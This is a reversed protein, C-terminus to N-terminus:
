PMASKVEDILRQLRAETEATVGKPYFHSQQHQRPLLPDDYDRMNFRQDFLRARALDFEEKAKKDAFAAVRSDLISDPTYAADSFSHTPTHLQDSGRTTLPRSPSPKNNQM